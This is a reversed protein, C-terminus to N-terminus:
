EEDYDEEDYHSFVDGYNEEVALVFRPDFGSRITKAKEIEDLCLEDIKGEFAENQIYTNDLLSNAFISCNDFYNCIISSRVIKSLRFECYQFICDFIKLDFFMVSAFECEYFGCRNFELGDLKTKYFVCGVFIVNKLELKYLDTGYFRRNLFIAQHGDEGNSSIWRKHLQYYVNFERASCERKMFRGGKITKKTFYRIIPCGVKAIIM